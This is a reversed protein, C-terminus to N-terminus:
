GGSMFRRIMVAGLCALVLGITAQAPATGIRDVLMGMIVAGLAGSGISVTTWLGMVRGRFHDDIAMQVLAQLSIAVFTVCGGLVLVVAMAVPFSDVLSLGAVLLPVLLLMVLVHKQFVGPKPARSMAKFVAAGAAGAGAAATMLGLGAPGREFVGNALLPLTELVSRGALAGIGVFIVATRVLRRQLAYRWGGLLESVYSAPEPAADRSRDRPRMFCLALVPVGYSAATLVLSQPAGIAHILAGGGAPGILRSLNFNLATLAVVSSLHEPPALRPTLSMRMPHNASSIVGTLLSFGALLPPTLADALCIWAFIASAIGACSYSIISGVRVDIRDAVVGFLPSVFLTPVFNLFAVLGVFSPSGTLVWALWGIIVRQAWFGNLAIHLSFIYSRFPPSKLAVLNM